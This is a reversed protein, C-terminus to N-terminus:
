ANRVLRQRMGQDAMGIMMEDVGGNVLCEEGIHLNSHERPEAKRKRDHGRLNPHEHRGAKVFVLPFALCLGAFMGVKVYTFFTEYVATYSIIIPIASRLMCRDSIRLDAEFFYFCAAFAILSYVLRKCSSSTRAAASM